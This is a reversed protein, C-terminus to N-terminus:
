KENHVILKLSRIEKGKSLIQIFYIGKVQPSPMAYLHHGQNLDLYDTSIPQGIMDYLKIELSRNEELSFDLNFTSSSVVPNPHIKVDFNKVLEINETPTSFDVNHVFVNSCGNDDTITVLYYGTALDVRDEDESGDNWEFSYPATGNTPTLNITGTNTGNDPTIIPNANIETVTLNLEILSDCGTSSTFAKQYTGASTYNIGGLTYSGNKCITKFLTQRISPTVTLNLTVMSDCGAVTTLQETYTGATSLMTNGFLYQEGECITMDVNATNESQVTLDLTVTSECGNSNAFVNTYTGSQNYVNSGFTYSEGKCITEKLLQPPNPLVFLNLTVTSDCGTATTQSKTYVGTTSYDTGLLSYVDGECISRNLWLNVGSSAVELNLTVISDCGTSATLTEQYIGTQSYVNNGFTYASGGCITAEITEDYSSVVSLQLNVISDCGTSATLTEQYNGSQTYDNNGLTYASGSCIIESITNINTNVTLDLMVISDCGTTTLLNTQYIGTSNFSNTGVLYTDGGCITAALNTQPQNNVTLDLTTAVTCGSSTIINEQYIGTTTLVQSGFVYQSGGCIVETMNETTPHVTLDIQTITRCGVAGAVTDAFIGTQNYSNNGFMFVDGGCIEETMMDSYTCSFISIADDSSGAVYIFRGYPSVAIGRAGSLGDINSVGDEQKMQYTLEGTSSNREFLTIANEGGSIAYFHQDDPNLALARVGQLGDVGDVDDKYTSLYSLFGTAPDRSFVVVAGDNFGCAYANMGDHSLIISSAGNLGNIGTLGNKYNTIYTLTGDIPSRSFLAVADDTYGTAYAFLGDASITVTNARKLGDVGNQSDKHQNIYTLTGTNLDRAFTVLADDFYGVAYVNKGDPSVTIWRAGNLGQVGNEDDEFYEIFTLEGTVDDRSFVVVADDNNGTAYVNKGDPSVTVSSAKFLGNVGDIGDVVMDIYNIKGSTQNRSFIAVADEDNSAVYLHKGDPSIAISYPDDLGDVGAGGSVKNELFDLYGGVNRNFITIANSGASATYINNDNPSVALNVPFNIGTVGNIGETKSEYLTLTGSVPNRYFTNITNDNAALVYVYDGDHSGTVHIPFNLNSGGTGGDQYVDVYSLKGTSVNRNFISVANDYASTAYVNNGDPSVYVSFPGNLGDVGNVDDTLEEEFTLLGTAVDRSFTALKNELHGVAYLHEGGPSMTIGFVLNIGLVGNEGHKVKGSFTLFGTNADRTFISIASDDTGSVYVHNGDPSIIIQYAGDLGDVGAFGDKHMGMYTLKGDVNNRQFSVLADDTSGIAYAHNGDPSIIISQASGLGEVGDLGSKYVEIFDLGNQPSGSDKKYLNIADSGASTVYVFAGDPSVVVSSAQNLLAGGQAGDFVFDEFHLQAHSFNTILVFLIAYFLKCFTILRM